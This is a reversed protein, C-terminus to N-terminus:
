TSTRNALRLEALVFIVALALLWWWVRQQDEAEERSLNVAAVRPTTATSAHGALTNFDDPAPWPTLDSEETKVNVAYLRGPANPQAADRYHYLGPMEPRVSGTVQLAAQPRPTEVAEWTGPGPLAIADGVRYDTATPQQQSLWLAAAHVFPVFSAKVPWDTTERDFDFGCVLFREGDAGVEAVADSGDDWTALPTADVGDLAVGRYFNVGLLAMLGGDALPAVIPHDTEWNRLHLPNDDSEPTVPKLTLHRAQMWATQAPGGNLLLWAAGGAKLFRDLRDVLPAEFPQDGRVIVVAQTPWDAEPVDEAKLPAAVVAKTSDIAHRLFDFAQPGGELPTLLVRLRAESPHLLYFADDAPLDDPDMEVKYDQDPNANSGPLPVLFSNTAGAVLAVTQTAVVKGGTRVTLIRTDHDPLYQTIEVRLAPSAGATEWRVKTIAAQRKPEPPIPPLKLHVGDPLPNSFDTGRWGLQQEDGMWVLTMERAGSRALTDAALRLAADYRTTEYGPSLAAMTARVQDVNDSLPVLWRPAPNMLLIGAQDGPGLNAVQEFAWDRLMPWRGTTQMSFSNDVAIVCVQGQGSRTSNWFPRAFAACILLIILCRLLLTLWRRLRHIKSERVATPGLFRLTPFVVSVQPKRRLLHLLVPVGILVAAGLFFPLLLSM